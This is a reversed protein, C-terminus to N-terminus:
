QTMIATPLHIQIKLQIFKIDYQTATLVTIEFVKCTLSSSTTEGLVDTNLAGEKMSFKSEASWWKFFLSALKGTWELLLIVTCTIM